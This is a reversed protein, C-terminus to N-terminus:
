AGDCPHASDSSEWSMGTRLNRGRYVINRTDGHPCAPPPLHLVCLRVPDGPRSLDIAKVADYGLTEHGDALVIRSGSGAVERGTASDTLRQGVHRVTTTFCQGVHEPRHTISSVVSRSAAFAAAPAL